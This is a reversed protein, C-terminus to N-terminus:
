IEADVLDWEWERGNGKRAAMGVIQRSISHYPVEPVTIISGKVVWIKRGYLSVAQVVVKYIIEQTKIPVRTKVLVKAVMGWRM